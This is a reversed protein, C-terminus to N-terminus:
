VSFTLTLPDLDKEKTKGKEREKERDKERMKQSITESYLEPQEQFQSGEAEGKKISPNYVHMVM